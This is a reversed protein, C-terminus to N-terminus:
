LHILIGRSCSLRMVSTRPTLLILQIEGSLRFYALQPPWFSNAIFAKSSLQRVALDGYQSHFNIFKIQIISARTAQSARPRPRKQLPLGHRGNLYL